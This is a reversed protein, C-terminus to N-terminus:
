KKRASRPATRILHVWEVWAGIIMIAIVGVITAITM